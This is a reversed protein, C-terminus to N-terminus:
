ALVAAVGIAMAAVASFDVGIAGAAGEEGGASGTEAPGDCHWHDGHPECGVSQSPSPM